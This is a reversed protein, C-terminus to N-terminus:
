PFLEEHSVSATGFQGVVLGAARNAIPVAERTTL